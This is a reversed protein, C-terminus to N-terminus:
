NVKEYTEKFIDPKCPYYEGQIGRIIYDGMSVKMNGELTKIWLDNPDDGMIVNGECFLEVDAKSTESGYELAEIIVPKKRYKM